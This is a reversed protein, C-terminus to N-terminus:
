LGRFYGGDSKPPVRRAGCEPYIGSRNGRLSYGCRACYGLRPVRSRRDLWRLFLYIIALPANVLYLPFEDSVCRHYREVFGDVVDFQGVRIACFCSAVTVTGVVLFCALFVWKWITVKRRHHMGKM